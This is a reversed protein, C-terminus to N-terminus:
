PNIIKQILPKLGSHAYLEQISPRCRYTWNSANTGRINIQDRKAHLAFGSIANYPSIDVGSDNIPLIQIMDMHVEKLWKFLLVLYPFEGIGSSNKSDISFLPVSIGHHAHLRIRKWHPYTPLSKPISSQAM